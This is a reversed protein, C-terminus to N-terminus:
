QSDANFFYPEFTAVLRAPIQGEILTGELGHEERKVHGQRHLLAVLDGQQYPVLVRVSVLSAELVHEIRSLLGEMGQGTKASIALSNPFEAVLESIEGPEDLRDIKNLALLVPVQTAGIDRLTSEVAAAQESANRHTIDIVHLLLDAETIEELTARFAAVLNTPLKQIFGVTDTFLVYRGGPMTVRRTTPDLTAFLMDAMLVDSHAVSNLLTSKGANTYGVIAVTPIAAQRRKRRYRARHQRVEGLDRKLHAIRRRIERRDAELQAEGPGRLGVGGAAGGARGGAQRALHTWLRTLRPLRYEYQALEVQLQGERTHAHQAFIDLILATRDVIKRDLARELERQQGASLEDDFLFVNVGLEDRYGILDQVKGKGIYTAPRIRELQQYTGGVVEIGATSALAALEELSDEISFRLGGDLSRSGDVSPHIADRKLGV